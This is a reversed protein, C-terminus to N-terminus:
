DASMLSDRVTIPAAARWGGERLPDCGILRWWCDWRGSCTGLAAPRLGQSSTVCLTGFGPAWCGLQAGWHELGRNQMFDVGHVNPVITPTPSVVDPPEGSVPLIDCSALSLDHVYGPFMPEPAILLSASVDRMVITSIDGRNVPSFLTIHPGM